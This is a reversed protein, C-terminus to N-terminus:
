AMLMAMLAIVGALFSGRQQQPASNQLGPTARASTQTPATETPDALVFTTSTIVVVNGNSTRTFTTVISKSTRSPQINTPTENNDPVTSTTFTTEGDIASSVLRSTTSFSSVGPSSSSSSGPVSSSRSETSQPLTGPPPVSTRTPPAPTNSSTPPTVPPPVTPTPTPTPTPSPTSSPSSASTPPTATTSSTSSTTSTPSSTPSETPTAATSNNDQRKALQLISTALAPDNQHVARIAHHESEWVGDQFKKPLHRHLLDHLSKASAGNLLSSFSSPEDTQAGSDQEPVQAKHCGKQWRLRSEGAMAVGYLILWTLGLFLMTHRYSAMKNAPATSASAQRGEELVEPTTPATKDKADVQVDQYSPLHGKELNQSDM